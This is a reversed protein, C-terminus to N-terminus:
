SKGYDALAQMADPVDRMDTEQGSFFFLLKTSRVM